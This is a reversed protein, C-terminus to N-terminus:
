AQALASLHACPGSLRNLAGKFFQDVVKRAVRYESRERNHASWSAQSATDAVPMRDRRAERNLTERSLADIPASWTHVGDNHKDDLFCVFVSDVRRWRDKTVWLVQAPQYCEPPPPGVRECLPLKLRDVFLHKPMAQVILPDAPIIDCVDSAAVREMYGGPSRLELMGDVARQFFWFPLELPVVAGITANRIAARHNLQLKSLAPISLLASLTQM